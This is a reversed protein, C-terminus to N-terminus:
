VSLQFNPNLKNQNYFEYIRLSDEKKLYLHYRTGSSTTIILTRIGSRVSVDAIQNYTLTFTETHFWKRVKGELHNYSVALYSTSCILGYCMLIVSITFIVMSIASLIILIIFVNYMSHFLPPYPDNKWATWFSVLSISLMITIFILATSPIIIKRGKGCAKIKSNDM